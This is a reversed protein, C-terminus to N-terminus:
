ELQPARLTCVAQSLCLVLNSSVKGSSWPLPTPSSCNSHVFKEETFLPTYFVSGVFTLTFELYLLVTILTLGSRWIILTSGPVGGEVLYLHAVVRSCKARDCLRGEISPM